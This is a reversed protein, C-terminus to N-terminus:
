LSHVHMVCKEAPFVDLTFFFVLVPGKGQAGLWLNARINVNNRIVWSLLGIQAYQSSCM